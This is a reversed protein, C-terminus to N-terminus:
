FPEYLTIRQYTLIALAFPDELLGAKVDKM